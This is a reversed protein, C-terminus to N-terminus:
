DNVKNLSIFYDTGGVYEGNNTSIKEIKFEPDTSFYKLIKELNHYEFFIENKVPGEIGAKLRESYVVNGNNLFIIEHDALGHEVKSLEKEEPELTEINDLTAGETIYYVEDWEFNTLNNLDVFCESSTKCNDQVFSILKTSFEKSNEIKNYILFSIVVAVLLILFVITLIKSKKM